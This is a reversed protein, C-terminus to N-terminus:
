ICEGSRIGCDKVDDKEEKQEWRKHLYTAALSGIATGVAYLVMDLSSNSITVKKILVVWLMSVGFTWGAHMAFHNGAAVIRTQMSLGFFWVFGLLFIIMTM